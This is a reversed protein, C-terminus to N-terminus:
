SKKSNKFHSRIFEHESDGDLIKEKKEIAVLIRNVAKDMDKLLYPDHINKEYNPNLFTDAEAITKVGRSVLLEQLLPEYPALNKRAEDSLTKRASYNKMGNSNKM